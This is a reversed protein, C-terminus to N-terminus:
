PSPHSIFAYLLCFLVLWDTPKSKECLLEQSIRVSYGEEEAEGGTERIFKQGMERTPFLLQQLHCSRTLPGIILRVSLQASAGGSGQSSM